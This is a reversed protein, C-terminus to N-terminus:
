SRGGCVACRPDRKVSRTKWELSSADWTRLEGAHTRGLLLQLAVLAQLSGIAGAVPGLIGAEECTEESEGTDPYLCAYCPSEPRRADFVALQGELRIAAGSVLPKKAAVCAANIAYRAAFNDTCDLVVDAAEVLPVFGAAGDQAEVRVGPNLAELRDRAAHAKPRGVDSQAYLIQRHLNSVQVRDRDVIALRGLGAGALYLSATSGLGGLGIVLASSDRLLRQGHVGVERLVIQRGYRSLNEDDVVVATGPVLAPTM